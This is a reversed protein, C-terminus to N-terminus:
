HSLLWMTIDAYFVDTSLIICLVQHKQITSITAAFVEYGSTHPCLYELEKPLGELTHGSSVITLAISDVVKGVVPKIRIRRIDYPAVIGHKHDSTDLVINCIAKETYKVDHYTMIAAVNTVLYAHEPSTAIMRGVSGSVRLTLSGFRPSRDQSAAKRLSREICLGNANPTAKNRLLEMCYDFEQNDIGERSLWQVLM